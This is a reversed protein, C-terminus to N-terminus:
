ARRMQLLALRGAMVAAGARRDQARLRPFSLATPTRRRTSLIPRKSCILQLEGAAGAASDSSTAGVLQRRRGALAGVCPPDGDDM